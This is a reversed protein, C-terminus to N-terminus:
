ESRQTPRSRWSGATQLGRDVVLGVLRPMARTLQLRALPDGAVQPAFARVFAVVHEETTPQLVSPSGAMTPPFAATAWRALWVDIPDNSPASLATRARPPLDALAAEIWTAHISRM